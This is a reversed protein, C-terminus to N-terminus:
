TDDVRVEVIDLVVEGPRRRLKVILCYHNNLRISHQRRSRPQRPRFVLCRMAALDREDRAARLIQLRSRYLGVVAAPFGHSYSADVELRDYANDEFILEM